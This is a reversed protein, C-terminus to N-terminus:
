SFFTLQSSFDPIHIWRPFLMQVSVHLLWLKVPLLALLQATASPMRSGPSLFVHQQFRQPKIVLLVHGIVWWVSVDTHPLGVTLGGCVARLMTPMQESQDLSLPLSNARVALITPLAHPLQRQIWAFHCSALDPAISTPDPHSSHYPLLPLLHGRHQLGCIQASEFKWNLSM